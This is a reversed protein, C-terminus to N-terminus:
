YHPPVEKRLRVTYAQLDHQRGLANTFNLSMFDSEEPKPPIFAPLHCRSRLAIDIRRLRFVAVLHRVPRLIVPLPYIPTAHRRPKVVRTDLLGPRRRSRDASALGPAIRQDSM